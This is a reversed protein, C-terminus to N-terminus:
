TFSPPAMGFVNLTADRVARCWVITNIVARLRLQPITINEYADTMRDVPPLPTPSYGRWPQLGPVM